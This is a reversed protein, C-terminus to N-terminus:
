QSIHSGRFVAGEIERQKVKEFNKGSSMCVYMNIKHGKQTRKVLISAEHNQGHPSTAM